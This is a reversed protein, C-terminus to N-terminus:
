PNFQPQTFRRKNTSKATKDRPFAPFYQVNGTAEKEKDDEMKEDAKEDIEEDLVYDPDADSDDDNDM